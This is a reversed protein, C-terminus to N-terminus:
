RGMQPPGLCHTGLRRRRVGQRRPLCALGPFRALKIAALLGLCIFNTHYHALPPTTFAFSKCAPPPQLGPVLRVPRGPPLFPSKGEPPVGEGQGPHQPTSRPPPPLSIGWGREARLGRTARIRAAAGTCLGATHQSGWGETCCLGRTARIRIRGAAGLGVTRAAWTNGPGGLVAACAARGHEPRGLGATRVAWAHSQGVGLGWGCRTCGVRTWSGWGWQLRTGLFGLEVARERGACTWPRGDGPRVAWAHGPGGGGRCASDM